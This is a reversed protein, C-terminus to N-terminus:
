IRCLMLRMCSQRWMWIDLGWREFKRPFGHSKPDIAVLISKIVSGVSIREKIKFATPDSSNLERNSISVTQLAQYWIEWGTMSLSRVRDAAVKM